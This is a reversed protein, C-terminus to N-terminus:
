RGSSLTNSTQTAVVGITTAAGAAVAVGAIVTGSVVAGSAAAGAAVAGVTGVAAGAAGAGAAAAGAAGATSAAGAAGAGVAAGVVAGQADADAPGPNATEAAAILPLAKCGGPLVNRTLVTFGKPSDPTSNPEAVITGSVHVAEGAKLNEGHLVVAVKSTADTLLFAKGAKTVCGTMSSLASIGLKQSQLDLANGRSLNAVNIGAANFIRVKGASAAVAVVEGRLSVTARAHDADIRLNNANVSYGDIQVSGQELLLRRSSLTGRSDAAFTVRGGNNLRISAGAPGTQVSSEDLVTANGTSATNNLMFSAGSVVVGIPTAAALLFPVNACMVLSATFKLSPTQM